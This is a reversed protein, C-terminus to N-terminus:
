NKAIFRLALGNNCWRERTPAPGDKFIHGQHGGCKVCHYETRPFILKFDRKTELHDSISTFFSPWGTGSDYKMESTFLPLACAACVFLGERKENNLPSSNPRETGDRFLIRYAADGVLDRWASDAMEVNEISQAIEAGDALFQQWESQMREITTRDMKGVADLATIGLLPALAAGTTSKLFTRREM